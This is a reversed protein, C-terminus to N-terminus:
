AKKIINQMIYNQEMTTYSAAMIILPLTFNIMFHFYKKHNM